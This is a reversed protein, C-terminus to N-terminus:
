YKRVTNPLNGLQRGVEVGAREGRCTKEVVGALRPGIIEERARLRGVGFRNGKGLLKVRTLRHVGQKVLKPQMTNHGAAV